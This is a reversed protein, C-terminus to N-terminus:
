SRVKFDKLAAFKSPKTEIACGCDTQNLDAGCSPCLGKCLESCLPKVPIELAVQEAIEPMLDIEDGSFCTSVLDREELEVEQEEQHSADGERFFISFQSTIQKDFSSLCRSCDMQVPVMVVGDVRYHDLERGAKVEVQVPGTFRCEGAAEMDHLVAFAAAPERFSYERATEKIHEIRVRM